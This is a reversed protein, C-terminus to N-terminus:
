HHHRHALARPPRVGILEPGYQWLMRFPRILWYLSCLQRPLPLWEVDDSNPALIKFFWYALQDRRRERSRVQFLATQSASSSPLRVGCYYDWVDATLRGVAPDKGIAASVEPPPAYGFFERALNVGLLMVRRAGLAEATTLLQEWLFGPSARLLGALSLILEACEWEHKAGHMALLLALDERALNPVPHGLLVFQEQRQWLQENSLAFAFYCPIAERHLEVAIGTEPHRYLCHYETALDVAGAGRASHSQFRYGRAKLLEAARPGAGNPILLDLDSFQRLDIDGYALAALVPGKYPIMPCGALGFQEVLDLLEATLLRNNRAIAQARVELQERVQEPLRERHPGLCRHLQPILRNRRAVRLLREWDLGPPLADIRPTGGLISRGCELLFWQEPPVAPPKNV